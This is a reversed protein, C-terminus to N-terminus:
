ANAAPEDYTAPARRTIRIDWDRGSRDHYIILGGQKVELREGAEDAYVIRSQGDDVQSWGYSDAIRGALLLSLGDRAAAADAEPDFFLEGLTKRTDVVVRELVAVDFRM